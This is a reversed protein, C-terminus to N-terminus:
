LRVNLVYYYATEDVSTRKSYDFYNTNYGLDHLKRIINILKVVNIDDQNYTIQVHSKGNKLETELSSIIKECEHHIESKLVGTENIVKNKLDEATLLKENM